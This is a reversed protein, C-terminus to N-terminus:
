GYYARPVPGGDVFHSMELEHLNRRELRDRIRAKSAALSAALRDTHRWRAPYSDPPAHNMSRKCAEGAAQRLSRIWVDADQQNAFCYYSRKHFSSVRVMTTYGPPLHELLISFHSGKDVVEVTISEVAIPSGKPSQNRSHDSTSSDEFRYLYSGVLLLTRHRWRPALPCLSWRLTWKQWSVPLIRFFIPVHLKLVSTPGCQPSAELLHELNLGTGRLVGDNRSSSESPDLPANQRRRFSM